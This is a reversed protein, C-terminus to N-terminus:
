RAGGTEEVLAQLLEDKTMSSRGPIAHEQAVTYLEDRTLAGLDDPQAGRPQRGDAGDAPPAAGGTAEGFLLRTRADRAWAFHEEEQALVDDVAARFEERLQGDAMQESLLALLEWNGHDKTEALLVAEILVLEATTLDLSGSV